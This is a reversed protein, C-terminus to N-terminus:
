LAKALSLWFLVPLGLALLPLALSRLMEDMGLGRELERSYPPSATQALGAEIWGHCIWAHLAELPVILFAVLGLKAGLWRAHGLGWGRLLMLLGGALLALLLGGHEARQWSRLARHRRLALLPDPTSHAIRWKWHGVGAAMMWSALALVHLMQLAGDFAPVL